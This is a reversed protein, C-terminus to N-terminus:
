FEKELISIFDQEKQSFQLSKFKDLDINYKKNYVIDVNDTTTQEKSIGLKKIASWVAIENKGEIELYPPIMPWIDFDLNVDDMTFEIRFNEQFTRHFYGLEELFENTTEFDSVKIELEKTGDIEISEVEKISLTTEEGNSRLRIWHGKQPPNFDYVYRKQYYRGIKVAGLEKAKNIMEIININLIRVEYETKM